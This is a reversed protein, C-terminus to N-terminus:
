VRMMIVVVQLILLHMNHITAITYNTVVVVVVVVVVVAARVLTVKVSLTFGNVDSSDGAASAMVTCSSRSIGTELLLSRSILRMM